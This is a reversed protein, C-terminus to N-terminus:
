HIIIIMLQLKVQRFKFASFHLLIYLFIVFFIFIATYTVIHKEFIIKM